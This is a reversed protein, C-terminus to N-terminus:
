NKYSGKYVSKGVYATEKLIGNEYSDIYVEYSQKGTNEVRSIRETTQEKVNATLTINYLRTEDNYTASIVIPTNYPNKFKFDKVGWVVAADLGAPVYGVELSHNYVETVEAGIRLACNYLASSPGCVGGGISSVVRGSEFSIANVFGREKTRNGVVDNYSFVANEPLIFGNLYDCAIKVNQLSNENEPYAIDYTAVVRVNTEENETTVNETTVNETAMVQKSSGILIIAATLLLFTKKM